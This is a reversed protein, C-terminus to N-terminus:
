TGTFKPERKERWAKIGEERDNIVHTQRIGLSHVMASDFDLHMQGLVQMKHVQWARTAMKAISQILEDTKQKFSKDSFVRHLFHIRLAERADLEDGLLLIRMAQSSGILKPLLYSVGTSAAEGQAVRNDRLIMSRNAVRIDCAVSLDLAVGSITGQLVAIHPKNCRFLAALARQEVIPGPGHSGQPKRHQLNEPFTDIRPPEGTKGSLFLATARVQKDLDANLLNVTISALAKHDSLVEDNIYFKLVNDAFSSLSSQGNDYVNFDSM